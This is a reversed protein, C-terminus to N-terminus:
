ATRRAEDICVECIPNGGLEYYTDGEFIPEGCYACECKIRLEYEPPDIPPEHGIDYSM